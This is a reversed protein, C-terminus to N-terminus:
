GPTAPPRIEEHTNGLRLESWGREGARYPDLARKILLGEIGVPARRSDEVWERAVEVEDTQPVLQIPPRCGRLLRELQQRRRWLTLARVDEGGKALVDFALFLAPQQESLMLRRYGRAGLRRQLAPLDLMGHPGLIVLEGDLVTGPPLQTAAALVVDPFSATLDVGQRSQVTIDDDAVFLLARYGDFNPQFLFEGVRASGPLGEAPVATMPEIPPTLM